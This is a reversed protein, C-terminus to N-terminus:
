VFDHEKPRIVLVPCPAHRVVHEVTSGLVVHALSSHGHSAILILDAPTSRAMEVIEWYPRGTRILTETQVRNGVEAAVWDALQKLSSEKSKTEIEVFSVGAPGLDSLVIDFEIVHLLTLSADFQGALATAYKLAQKCPDSFDIPVLINKLRIALPGPSLPTETPSNM